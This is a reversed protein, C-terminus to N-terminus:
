KIMLYIDMEFLVKFLLCVAVRYHFHYETVTTYESCRGMGGCLLLVTVVFTCVFIYGDCDRNKGRFCVFLFM